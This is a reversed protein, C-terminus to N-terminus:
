PAIVRVPKGARWARVDELAQAYVDRYNEITVYGLHPTLLVNDLARLPHDKAPPEQDYVDVAAGAIRRAKLAAVLAATDVIPGRSTNVLYATPKMLALEGAGVIGRSGANLAVHVTVFDARKFLEEKSVAAAGAARAREPTLNPSWAIAEMGFATAIKAMQSGLKGLGVIGLVKGALGIGVTTQWAGARMGAHERPISRALGIILGWALEATPTALMSTGCVTIGRTSAAKVDISANRMGATVILKLKPLRELLAKPFPTRERMAIAIDFDALRRAAADADALVDHLSVTEIDPELSKWDALGLAVNQYDDLIALKM